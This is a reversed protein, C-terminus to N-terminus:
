GRACAYWDARAIGFECAAYAFADALSDHLTETQAEGRENLYFLYVGDDAAYRGVALEYPPALFGTDDYHRVVPQQAAAARVADSLQVRYLPEAGDIRGDASIAM